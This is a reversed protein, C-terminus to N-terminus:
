KADRSARLTRRSKGSTSARPRSSKELTTGTSSGDDVDASDILLKTLEIALNKVQEEDLSKADAKEVALLTLLHFPIGIEGALRVLTALSPTRKGAEILSLYSRDLECRDALTAQSMSSMSRVIRIAKAYNM